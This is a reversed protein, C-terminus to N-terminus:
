QSIGGLDDQSEFTSALTIGLVMTTSLWITFGVWQWSFFHSSTTQISLEWYINKGDRRQEKGKGGVKVDQLIAYNAM